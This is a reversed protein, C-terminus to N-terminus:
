ESESEYGDLLGGGQMAAGKGGEKENKESSQLGAASASAASSSSAATMGEALAKRKVVVKPRGLIRGAIGRGGGEVLSSTGARSPGFSDVGVLAMQGAANGSSSSSSSSASSLGDAEAAQIHPNKRKLEAFDEEDDEEEEEEQGELEGGGEGARLQRQLERFEEMDEEDISAALLAQQREEEKRDRSAAIFDLARDTAAERHLQRRNIQRVEDLAELQDLEKATNYTKQELQKMKDGELEKEEAERLEKEAADADRYADYNRTGGFELIYDTNKPDTKFAFEARCNNCKGYFRWIAIGIYDEGKVKEVRSNFKTGIYNFEGCTQCCMSFPMMMRVEMQRPKKPKGENLKKLLKGRTILKQPDFDPSYYKNLVKRESM